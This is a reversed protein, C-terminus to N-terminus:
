SPDMSDAESLKGILADLDAFPSEVQNRFVAIVLDNEPDCVVASGWFGNHNWWARGGCVRRFLGLGAEGHDDDSPVLGGVMAALTAPSDFVRGSLLARWWRALDATTSIIGGGGWLDESADIDSADWTGIFLRARPAAAAPEPELREWHTAVLGLPGFRCLRRVAAAMQEGTVQELVQAALLYGTDSYHFREGPQGVPAFHDCSFRVQELPTWRHDPDAAVADGYPASAYAGDLGRAYDSIGSTHRLLQEVTIRGTEYGADALADVFPAPVLPAMPTDLAIEGAEVLRLVAAAVFTKTNSASRFATGPTLDGAAAEWATGDRLVTVVVGPIGPHDALFRELARTM